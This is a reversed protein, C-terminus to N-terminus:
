FRTRCSPINPVRRGERHEKKGIKKWDLTSINDGVLFGTLHIYAKPFAHVKEQVPEKSGAM